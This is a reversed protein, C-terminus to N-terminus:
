RRMRQPGHPLKSAEEETRAKEAAIQDEFNHPKSQNRM